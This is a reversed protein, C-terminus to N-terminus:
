EAAARCSDPWGIDLDAVIMEELGHYPLLSLCAEYTTSIAIGEHHLVVDLQFICNPDQHFSINELIVPATEALATIRDQQGRLTLRPWISGIETGATSDRIDGDAIVLDAMGARAYRHSIDSGVVAANCTGPLSVADVVGGDVINPSCEENAAPGQELHEVIERVGQVADGNIM